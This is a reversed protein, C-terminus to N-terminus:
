SLAAEFDELFKIHEGTSLPAISYYRKDQYPTESFREVRVPSLFQRSHTVDFHLSIGSIEYEPTQHLNNSIFDTVRTGLAQLKPSVAPLSLDSTFILESLYGRRTIMGPSNSLGFKEAGWDLMDQLIAESVDTSATTDVVVGWSFLALKEIGLDNWKGVEFNIGKSEDMDAINQPFKLFSYREVFSKM